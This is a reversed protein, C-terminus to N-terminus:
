RVVQIPQRVKVIEDDCKTRFLIEAFYTGDEVPNGSSTGDWGLLYKNTQFILNGWRNYIRMEYDGALYSLLLVSKDSSHIPYYINNVEDGDPTFVNNFEDVVYNFSLPEFLFASTKNECGTIPNNYTVWIQNYDVPLSITISDDNAGPVAQGNVYWQYDAYGEPGLVFSSELEDCTQTYLWLSDAPYPPQGVTITQTNTCTGKNAIITYSGASMGTAPNQNSAYGGPGITNYATGVIPLGGSVYSGQISGNNGGYCTPQTVAYSVVLTTSDLVYNTIFYCGPSLLCSDVYTGEIPAPVSINLGTGLSTGLPDYWNHAGNASASQVNFPAGPCFEKIITSSDEINEILIITDYFCGDDVVRIDYLGLVLNNYNWQTVPTTYNTVNFGNPGNIIYNILNSAPTADNFNIQRSRCTTGAIQQITFDSNAINDQLTYVISDYCGNSHQYSLYVIEGQFATSDILFNANGAPAPYPAGSGYYWQYNTKNNPGTILGEGECFNTNISDPVMVPTTPIFFSTDIQGCNPNNSAINLQYTGMPLNNIQGTSNAGAITGPGTWTYNYGATSGTATVYASGFTGRYCTGTLFLDDLDVVSYNIGINQTLICGNSTGIQVTFTDGLTPAPVTLTDNTAGPIPVMSNPGFWQYTQFGPEAVVQAFQDGQCYNVVADINDLCGADVYAYGFHGSYDCDASEFEVTINQGIYPTLDVNIREWKRYYISGSATYTPDNPAQSSLIEYQGCAGGVINGVSDMFRVKFYPQVNAPHGSPNEFVVAFQYYFAKNNPTVNVIYRLREKQSGNNSNGLRVSANGGFPAIFPIEALGTGPNIALPDYGIVPGTGSNNNGPPITLITQRSNPNSNLANMVTTITNNAFPNAYSGIGGTWEPAFVLNEFGANPCGTNKSPVTVPGGKGKVQIVEFYSPFHKNIYENELYKLIGEKENAPVTMAAFDVEFKAYDFNKLLDKRVAGDHDDNHHHGSHDVPIVEYEVKTIQAFSLSILFSFVSTLILKM